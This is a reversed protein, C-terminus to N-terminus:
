WNQMEKELDELSTVKNEAIAKESELARSILEEHTLKKFRSQSAFGILKKIAEIVGKDNIADIKEKLLQKELTLNM